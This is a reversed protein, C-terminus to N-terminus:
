IYRKNGGSTVVYRGGRPGTFVSSEEALFEDLGVETIIERLGDLAAAQLAEEMETGFDYPPRAPMKATGTQHYSAYPVGITGFDFNNDDYERMAMPSGSSTLAERLDGKAVLIPQGPYHGAKWAEYTESLQQWAGKNPGAGQADFQRGEAEEFVPVLKPYVYQGFHTLDSGAREFAVQLRQFLEPDHPGGGVSYEITLGVFSM